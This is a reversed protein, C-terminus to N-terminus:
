WASETSRDYDYARGYHGKYWCVTKKVSDSISKILNDISTDM